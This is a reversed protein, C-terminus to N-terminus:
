RDAQVMPWDSGVAVTRTLVIRQQARPTLRGWSGFALVFWAMRRWTVVDDSM